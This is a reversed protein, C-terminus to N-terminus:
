WPWYEDPYRPYYRKRKKLVFVLIVGVLFGGIHAWWAVGGQVGGLFSVTGVLFQMVFWIGLFFFAPIQWIQIFLFFPILTLVRANPYLVLYAGMVGAISGSAGITPVSSTPHVFTHVLNAGVGCVMYFLLYRGHGLRDEVNDGFIWLYLMNGIIHM